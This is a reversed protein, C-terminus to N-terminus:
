VKYMDGHFTSGLPPLEPNTGYEGDLRIIAPNLLRVTLDVKEKGDYIDENFRAEVSGDSNEKCTGKLRTALYKYVSYKFKFEMILYGRGSDQIAINVFDYPKFNIGNWYTKNSLSGLDNCTLKSASYSTFSISLCFTSILTVLFIKKM